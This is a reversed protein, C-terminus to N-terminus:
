KDSISLYVAGQASGDARALFSWLGEEFAYEARADVVGSEILVAEGVALGDRCVTVTVSGSDLRGSASFTVARRARIHDSNIMEDPQVNWSRGTSSYSFGACGSMAALLIALFLLPSRMPTKM